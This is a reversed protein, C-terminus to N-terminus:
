KTQKKKKEFTFDLVLLVSFSPSIIFYFWLSICTHLSIVIEIFHFAHGTVIKTKLRISMLNHLQKSFDDICM